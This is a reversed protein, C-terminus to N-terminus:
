IGQQAVTKTKGGIYLAGHKKAKSSATVRTPEVIISNRKSKLELTTAGIGTEGKRILGFPMENYIHALKSFGDYSDPNNKKITIVREKKDGQISVINSVIL